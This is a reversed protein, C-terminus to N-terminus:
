RRLEDHRRTPGDPEITDIPKDPASVTRRRRCRGGDGSEVTVVLSADPKWHARYVSGILSAAM